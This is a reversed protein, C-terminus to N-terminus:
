AWSEKAAESADRQENSYNRQEYTRGKLIHWGHRFPRTRNQALKLIQRKLGAGELM